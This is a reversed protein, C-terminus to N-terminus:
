NDNVPIELQREDAWGVYWRNIEEMAKEIPKNTNRLTLMGVKDMARAMSVNSIAITGAIITMGLFKVFESRAVKSKEENVKLKLRKEIFKSVSRMVREASLQSRLFVNCDDAYRCFVLGRQELEKDLEDLVVNSLLPSLPSGQTTGENTGIVVGDVMVGSRLILGILRLVRSDEVYKKLRSILRDHNVRDFFKCLDIDVVYEKGSVVIEKARGVAQKQDRGPRFGYSNDSFTPDIIPELVLKISMQIVRDRVCPIGLLRVGKGDPKPIEVRRVAKPKYTWSEVEQKLRSLEEDLKVGYEEVNIGDIGAAGKNKRVATYAARLSSVELIEEFLRPHFELRM